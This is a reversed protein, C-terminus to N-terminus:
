FDTQTLHYFVCPLFVEKGNSNIFKNLTNDIGIVKNINTVDKVPIDCKLYDILYIIFTNLEYLAGTDWILIFKRPDKREGSHHLSNELISGHLIM